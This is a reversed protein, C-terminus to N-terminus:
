SLGEDVVYPTGGAFTSEEDTGGAVPSALTSAASGSAFISLISWAAFPLRSSGTTPRFFSVAASGAQVSSVNSGSDSSSAVTPDQSIDFALECQGDKIEQPVSASDVPNGERDTLGTRPFALDQNADTKAGNWAITQMVRTATILARDKQAGTLVRWLDAARASDGLYADAEARTVYSNTGVVIPM